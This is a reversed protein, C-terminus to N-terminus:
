QYSVALFSRSGHVPLVPQGFAEHLVPRAKTGDRVPHEARHALRVVGNLLGPQADAAGIGRADLVKGPPQGCHHCPHGQVHQTRPLRAALRRQVYVHGVRDDAARVAGVGLVLRQQGVRNPERQQHHELRQAGASRTANTSCSM